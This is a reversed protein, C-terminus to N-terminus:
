CHTQFRLWQSDIDLNNDQHLAINGKSLKLRTIEIKPTMDYVKSVLPLRCVKNAEISKYRVWKWTYYFLM